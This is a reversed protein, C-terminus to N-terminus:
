RKLRYTHVAVPIIGPYTQEGVPVYDAGRLEAAIASTLQAYTFLRGPVREGGPLSVLFIRGGHAEAVAARVAEPVPLVEDFVGFPHDTEQPVGARIVRRSSGLAADLGSVPGPSLVSADIVVDRPTSTRDIYAAAARY